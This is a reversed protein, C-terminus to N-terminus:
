RQIPLGLLKRLQQLGRRIRTKVTGLPVGLAQEIERHTMGQFYALELVHRCDEEIRELFTDLGITDTSLQTSPHENSHVSFELPDTKQNKRFSKSRTADIAANRAINLLWTSLKGKHSDFRDAHKWAKLFVEQTLEQALEQSRVIRLVVGYVMGGYRDIAASLAQEDKRRLGDVIANPEMPAFSDFDGPHM